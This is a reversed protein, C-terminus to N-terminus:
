HLIINVPVGCKGKLMKVAVTVKGTVGRVGTATAKAVRSFAGKGIIKIVNIDTRKLEWNRTSPVLPMYESPPTPSQARGTTTVDRLNDDPVTAREEKTAIPNKFTILLCTALYPSLYWSLFFVSLCVYLYFM